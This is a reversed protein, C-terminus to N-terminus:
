FTCTVRRWLFGASTSAALSRERAEAKEAEHGALGVLPLREPEDNPVEEHACGRGATRATEIRAGAARRRAGSVKGTSRVSSKAPATRTSMSAAIRLIRSATSAQPQLINVHHEPPQSRLYHQPSDDRIASIGLRNESNERNANDGASTLSFLHLCARRVGFLVSIIVCSILEIPM